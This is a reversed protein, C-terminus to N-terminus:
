LMVKSHIDPAWLLAASQREHNNSTLSVGTFGVAEILINTVDVGSPGAVQVCLLVHVGVCLGGGVSTLAVDFVSLTLVGGGRM